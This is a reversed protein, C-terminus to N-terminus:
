WLEYGWGRRGCYSCFQKLKLLSYSEGVVEVALSQDPLRVLADPIVSREGRCEYALQSESIWAAAEEPFRLRKHLFVQAVHVDHTGESPRVPRARGGFQSAGSGTISVISVGQISKAWRRRTQAIVSSFDPEALGPRWGFLPGGLEIEPFSVLVRLNLLGIQRLRKVRRIASDDNSCNPWWTRRVQDLTLVKVKTALISLLTRDRHSLV